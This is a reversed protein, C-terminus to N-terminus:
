LLLQSRTHPTHARTTIGSMRLMFLSLAGLVFHICENSMSPRGNWLRMRVLMLIRTHIPLQNWYNYYHTNPEHSSLAITRERTRPRWEIPASPWRKIPARGIFYYDTRAHVYFSAHTKHVYVCSTKAQSLTATIMPRNSSCTTIPSTPLFITGKKKSVTPQKFPNLNPDTTLILCITKKEYYRRSSFRFPHMVGCFHTDLRKLLEVTDRM